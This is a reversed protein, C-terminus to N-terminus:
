VEGKEARRMTVKYVNLNYRSSSIFLRAPGQRMATLLFKYPERRRRIVTWGCDLLIARLVTITAPDASSPTGGSAYWDWRIWKGSRSVQLGLSTLVEHALGMVADYDDTAMTM